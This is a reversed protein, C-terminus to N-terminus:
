GEYMLVDSSEDFPRVVVDVGAHERDVDYDIYRLLAKCDDAYVGAHELADALAKSLNNTDRRRRDPWHTNVEVVVKCDTMTWGQREIEKRIIAEAVAFWAKGKATRVRKGFKTTFYLSNVSPVPPLKVRLCEATM